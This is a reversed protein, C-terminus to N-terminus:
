APGPKEHKTKTTSKASRVPVGFHYTVLAFALGGGALYLYYTFFRWVVVAIVANQVGVMPTLAFSTILEVAGGGGPAVVILGILFLSGQILMLLIPQVDLDLAWLIVVLVGYRCTWQLSAFFLVFCYSLRYRSYILGLCQLAERYHQQLRTMLNKWWGKLQIKVSHPLTTSLSRRFVFPLSILMFGFLLACVWEPGFGKIVLNKSPLWEWAQYIGVPTLALFFFLDALWDAAMLSTTKQYPMGLRKQLAMRTILGGIGGPTCAIAFEM